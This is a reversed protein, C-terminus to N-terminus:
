CKPYRERCYVMATRVSSNWKIYTVKPGHKLDRFLSNPSQIVEWAAVNFRSDRSSSGSLWKLWTRSQLEMSPLRPAYWYIQGLEIKPSSITVWEPICAQSIVHVSPGPPSHELPNWLTLRSKAILDSFSIAVWELIRAQLIGHVSSGPPSSDM